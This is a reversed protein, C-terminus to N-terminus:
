YGAALSNRRPDYGGLLNGTALERMVGEVGGVRDTWGALRQVRHGITELAGLTEADFRTECAVTGGLDMVRFRPAEIASQLDIGYDMVDVLVQVVYQVIGFGGPSGLTIWPAGDEAFAIAPAHGINARKGPAVANPGERLSMWWTRDNMLLGTGKVVEGCGFDGGITQTASVANGAEDVVVFHTTSAALSPTADGFVCIRDPAIEKAAARARAPDLLAAIDIPAYDPDGAYRRRDVLAARVAEIQYHLAQASHYPLAGLTFHELIALAQLVHIGATPPPSVVVRRGRYRGEVPERWVPRYAALDEADLAAGGARAAAAILKATEGTAFEQEPSEAYRDLVGALDRQVLTEGEGLPEGDPKFFIARSAPFREVKDRHTALCRAFYRSVPVGGAALDIARAALQRMPLSGYRRLAEAWAAPTGPAMATVIGTHRINHPEEALAASNGSPNIEFHRALAEASINRACTSYGDLHITERTQAWHILWASDGALGSWDHNTVAITAGVAIAADVANGGARLIDLGAQAADPHMASVM